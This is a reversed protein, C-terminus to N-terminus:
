LNASTSHALAESRHGEQQPLIILFQTHGPRSSVDITGGHREVIAKAISLGLGSGGGGGTARSSDVKYFRDFVHPLHEAAIGAGSDVVALVWSDGVSAASLEITGGDPTHRLANAVLNQVVQEIRDPDAVVQDALPDVRAHLGIQRAQAERAHRQLVAGFVREIAFVRVDLAAVDNEYRALDVLDKVIRELRGMERVVTDVYRDRTLRDIDAARLQLTELYGRMATLPTKLEHSIDALMQRRLRDSARLAGTSAALESAMSNFARAVRAIEDRGREPARSALDGRGFREAASELAQLRRRAPAFIVFAVLVTAVILVLTGPLSMLRGIDGVMGGGWPPPPMVVVGILEGAVQIPATIVPGSVRRAGIPRPPSSGTFLAQTELVLEEVLPEATNAAVAGDKSVIYVGPRVTAYQRSLFGNLDVDPNRALLAGADTAIAAAVANPSRPSFTLESRAFMYSFMMSQAVLVAMLFAVFSIGIRWYFSGYWHPRHSMDSTTMVRNDTVAARNERM